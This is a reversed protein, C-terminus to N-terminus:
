GPKDDNASSLQSRQNNRIKRLRFIQKGVFRRWASNKVCQYEVYNIVAPGWRTKSVDEGISLNLRQIKQGIAWQIAEAVLTTMVSYQAYDLDYGSYYLYLEDGMNFALRMAVVKGNLELCFLCMRDAFPTDLLNELLAKHQPHSFYDPHEITEKASARAGHLAYFMPLQQVIATRGQLVRFNMDLGDRKPSNYCRRLSEKINRKLGSKFSDWDEGLTLVFNPITRDTLPFLSKNNQIFHDAPAKAGIIQFETLGFTECRTLNEWLQLVKEAYEPLTLPVRLETLNPDGGFPRVYRYLFFRHLGVHTNMLPMVAVLQDNDYVACIALEHQHFFSKGSFVKWWACNWDYTQFPLLYNVKTELARWATALAEFDKEKTIIIQKLNHMSSLHPSSM